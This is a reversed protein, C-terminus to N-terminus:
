TLLSLHTTLATLTCHFNHIRTATQTSPHINTNIHPLTPSSFPQPGVLSSSPLLPPDVYLPSHHSPQPPCPQVWLSTSSLATCGTAPNIVRTRHAIILATSRYVVITTLYNDFSIKCYHLNQYSPARIFTTYTPVLLYLLLFRFALFLKFISLLALNFNRVEQLSTGLKM